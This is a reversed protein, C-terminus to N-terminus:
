RRTNPPTTLADEVSGMWEMVEETALELHEHVCKHHKGHMENVNRGIKDVLKVLPGITQDWQKCWHSRPFQREPKGASAETGNRPPRSAPEEDGEPEMGDDLFPDPEECTGIEGSKRPLFNALQADTRTPSGGESSPPKREAVISQVTRPSVGAKAAIDKQTMKGGNDLLWEVCARKDARSMRLGHKDNATMGFVKADYASGKHIVSPISGRKVRNAALTRHFGDAVFYDTGDHFVDIPGFPWDGNSQSIIEAYDAIVEENIKVRCQTDGDTKLLEIALPTSKM